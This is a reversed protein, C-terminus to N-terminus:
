FYKILNKHLNSHTKSLRRPSPYNFLKAEPKMISTTIKHSRTSYSYFIKINTENEKYFNDQLTYGGATMATYNFETLQDRVAYVVINNLNCQGASQYAVGSSFKMYIYCKPVLFRHDPMFWCRTRIRELLCFLEPQRMNRVPPTTQYPDSCILPNPPPLTFAPNHGPDRWQSLTEESIRDM